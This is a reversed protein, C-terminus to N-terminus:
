ACFSRRDQTTTLTSSSIFLVILCRGVGAALLTAAGAGASLLLCATSVRARQDNAGDKVAATVHQDQKRSCRPRQRCLQGARAPRLPKQRPLGWLRASLTPKPKHDAPFAACSSRPHRRQSLSRLKTDASVGTGAVSCVEVGIYGLVYCM